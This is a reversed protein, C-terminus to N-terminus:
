KKRLKPLKASKPVLKYLVYKGMLFVAHRDAVVTTYSGDPFYFVRAGTRANFGYSGREYVTSVYVTNDVM